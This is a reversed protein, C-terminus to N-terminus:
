TPSAKLRQSRSNSGGTHKNQGVQDVVLWVKGDHILACATNCHAETECLGNQGHLKYMKDTEHSPAPLAYQQHARAVPEKIETNNQKSRLPQRAHLALRQQLMQAVTSEAYHYKIHM